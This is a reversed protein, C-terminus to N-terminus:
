LADIEEQTPQEEPVNWEKIFQIGDGNDMLIIDETFDIDSRGLFTKIKTSLKHDTNKVNNIGSM